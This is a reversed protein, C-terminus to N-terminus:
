SRLEFMSIKIKGLLKLFDAFSQLLGVLGVKNPGKRRQAYGLIKREALIFFAVLLMIFTFTILLRLGEYFFLSLGYM